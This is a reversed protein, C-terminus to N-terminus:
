CASASSFFPPAPSSSSSTSRKSGCAASAAACTSFSRASLAAFRLFLASLLFPGEVAFASRGWVWTPPSPLSSSNAVEALTSTSPPVPLLTLKSSIRKEPEEVPEPLPLLASVPRSLSFRVLSASSAFFTCASNLFSFTLARFTARCSFSSLALAANASASFSSAAARAALSCSCSAAASPAPGPPNTAGPSPFPPPLLACFGVPCLTDPPRRQSAKGRGHSRPTDSATRSFNAVSATTGPLEVSSTHAETRDRM